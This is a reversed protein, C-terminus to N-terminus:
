TARVVGCAARRGDHASAAGRLDPRIAELERILGAGDRRPMRLDCLVADFCDTRLLELAVAGDPATVVRHGDRGLAEELMAVVEAEDDVVLVKGGAAGATTPQRRSRGVKARCAPLTVIFRAGGGPRDDVSISGGHAALISHCVSLGLGTGSGVPKTTFFPELIRDRLAAPVGPGNDAVEVRVSGNAATTRLWLRRPPEVTELAQHANILLNLFVQHLQDEDAVVLPLEPADERETEIGASRLGYALDLVADLVKRVDVPLTERPKERALALFSKVIRSCREAAARLRGLSARVAPDQAEDELMIARGVVVSLPNNLEQAVGALLSGLSALKERLHAAERQRRIESEAQKRETIDRGLLAEPEAGFLQAHARNTFTLRFNADYRSILETQDEVVARYRRESELLAQEARRRETIDRLYATFLRRDALRVEAIALEVPFVSGDARMGDIEIRRGLVHREGTVLYRAM